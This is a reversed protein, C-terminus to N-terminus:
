DVLYNSPLKGFRKKFQQSFNKVHKLGVAFAVSKVSSYKGQELLSRAQSLRIEQIYQALTMGTMKKVKRFIQVRSTMMLGALFDATLSFNNLHNIITEELQRLWDADKTSLHLGGIVQKQPEMELEGTLEAEKAGLKRLQSNRLLNEIRAFLEEEEFPKLIYDDVGIRLAKMKDKFNARATLMIMPIHALDKRSKITNALQYGDMVPMMVDSLILDIDLLTKTSTKKALDTLLNLAASGNEATVVHYQNILIVQLYERLSHNDEVIMISARTGKENSQVVQLIPREEVTKPVELVSEELTTTGFVEKRPFEFYFTSGEELSSDVWLRGNFLQAFERCLALGIGAGGETAVNPQKSQYFRDFIHPLDEAAIGKGTDEVKLQMTNGQDMVTVKIMEGNPTFKFANSLLNNLVKKLKDADLNLQLYKDAQYDFEFHVGQREAHSQFTGIIRRILPFLLTPVENLELKGAELRSLDLIESILNLLQYGSQRATSLLGVHKQNLDKSKLVSSLPGLMLTLPTRLEHSVNAFFRSKVKDLQRLETAQQEITEKDELIKATARNVKDKLMIQTKRYDYTRWKYYGYILAMAILALLILFWNQLYFPKLVKIKITLENKGWKGNAAQGKIRLTHNGYPLRSFRISREKQHTWDKDLGEVRYAYNIKEVNEYTLLAFELLFFRDDPQMVIEMTEVLSEKNDVLQNEAATFQQFNTISLSEDITDNKIDFDNPNFSTIGNLGGFYLQGDTDQFHSIRNFEEHSIGHKPLFTNVHFTTKNFQMIGFDSSLWLQDQQDEYVAYINNHSLGDSKVFARFDNKAKDWRFLGNGATALWYVGDADQHFHQVNEFPLQYVGEGGSWYRAAIKGDEGVMYFGTSSCIWTQGTRDEGIHLIFCKKSLESFAGGGDYPQIQEEGPLYQALGNETGLWITKKQDQFISWIRRQSEDFVPAYEFQQFDKNEIDFSTLVNKGIWVTADRGQYLARGLYEREYEKADVMESEGTALDIGQLGNADTATYLHNNQVIIGRCSNAYFQDPGIEDSLYNTFVRPRVDVVYVGFNGGIWTRGESDVTWGRVHSSNLDPYDTGLEFLIKGEPGIVDLHDEYQFWILNNASSYRIRGFNHVNMLVKPIQKETVQRKGQGLVIQRFSNQKKREVPATYWLTDNQLVCRNADIPEDHDFTQLVKGEQNVEVLQYSDAVGWITQQATYAVPEFIKFQKFKLVKFGDELRYRILSAEHTTGFFLSGDENRLSNPTLQNVYFPLNAGFKENLAIVKRNYPHYLIITDASGAPTGMFLWLLGEKDQTINNIHNFGNGNEDKRMWEFEYGDFRNLGFKTGIWMFGDRDQYIANVERHSLGETVGYHEVNAQLNQATSVLANQFFLLCLFYRLFAIRM